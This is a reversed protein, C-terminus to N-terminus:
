AILEEREDRTEEQDPDSIPRIQEYRIFMKDGDIVKIKYGDCGLRATGSEHLTFFTIEEGKKLYGIIEAPTGNLYQFEDLYQLIGIDGAKMM